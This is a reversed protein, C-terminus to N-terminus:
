NCKVSNQNYSFFINITVILCKYQIVANARSKDRVIPIFTVVSHSNKFLLEKTGLHICIDNSIHKVILVM